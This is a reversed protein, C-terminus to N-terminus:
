ASSLMSKQSEQKGVSCPEIFDSLSYKANSLYHKGTYAMDDNVFRNFNFSSYTTDRKSSNLFPYFTYFDEIIPKMEKIEKIAIDSLPYCKSQGESDILSIGKAEDEIVAFLSEKTINALEKLEIKLYYLLTYIIYLQNRKQEKQRVINSGAFFRFASFLRSDIRSINIAQLTQEKKKYEEIEKELVKAVLDEQLLRIRDDQNNLYDKAWRMKIDILSQVHSSLSESTIMGLRHFDRNQSNMKELGYRKKDWIYCEIM